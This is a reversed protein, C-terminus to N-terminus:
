AIRRSGPKFTKAAARVTAPSGSGSSLGHRRALRGGWGGVRPGDHSRIELREPSRVPVRLGVPIRIVRAAADVAHDAGGPLGLHAREEVLEKVGERVELQLDEVEDHLVVAGRDAPLRGAGEAARASLCAPPCRPSRCPRPSPRCSRGRPPTSRCSWGRAGARRSAASPSSRRARSARRRSGRWSPARRSRSAASRRLRRGPAILASVCAAPEQRDAAAAGRGERRPWGSRWPQVPVSGSVQASPGFAPLLKSAVFLLLASCGQESCREGLPSLSLPCCIAAAARAKCAPSYRAADQNYRQPSSNAAISPPMDYASTSAATSTEALMTDCGGHIRSM